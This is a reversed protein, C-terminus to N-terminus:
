VLLAMVRREARLKTRITYCGYVLGPLASGPLILWKWGAM